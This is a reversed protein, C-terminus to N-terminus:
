MRREAKKMETSIPKAKENLEQLANGLDELTVLGKSNLYMMAKSIAKLDDAAGKQKGYGSLDWREEKRLDMYATLLGALIPSLPTEMEAAEKQM